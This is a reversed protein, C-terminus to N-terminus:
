YTSLVAQIKSLTWGPIKPCTKQWYNHIKVTKISSKSSKKSKVRRNVRGFPSNAQEGKQEGKWSEQEGKWLIFKGTWGETWRESPQIQSNVRRNVRGFTSKEQEGKQEGKWSRQEGKWIQDRQRGKNSVRGVQQIAWGEFIWWEEAKRTM